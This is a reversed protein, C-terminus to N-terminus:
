QNTKSMSLIDPLGLVRKAIVNLQVESTGGEISNAKSRLWERTVLLEEANFGEGEWGLSQSGLAKMLIEYRRKNLECGYNKLMSSTANPGQGQKSEEISRQSTLMFATSDIKFQAIEDRLVLDSLKGKDGRYHMAAGELSAVTSTTGGRDSQGSALGFSSIMTREHQLLRKAITWGDNLRGVLNNKPAKVDDFFTECFPSAGSILQIPKTTIGESAMDFLIFSIGAHKPVDFDTRVLCFIWDAKDAYSTWIKSGNILYHDGQLEAKTKLSALDSGSGPESYGQCWRIEGRVIKPLHELKQEHSGYELLVPGLMSIGFSTLGPRANIRRLEENLIITQEKSLGGGGYEQPWTPCTWGKEALRDLWVKSEPNEYHPRRGGWVIEEQVMATRMSQPCNEELWVRASSRFDDLAQM